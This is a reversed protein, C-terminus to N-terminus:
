ETSESPDGEGLVRLIVHAMERLQPRTMEVPRGEALQAFLLDPHILEGDDKSTHVIVIEGHFLLTVIGDDVGQVVLRRSVPEDSM